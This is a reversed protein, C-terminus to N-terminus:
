WTKGKPYTASRKDDDQAQHILEHSTAEAREVNQAAVMEYLEQHLQIARDPDEAPHVLLGRHRLLLEILAGMRQLLDNKSAASLAAHFSIDASVATAADSSSLGALAQELVALDAETRRAAALRAVAPEIVSRAESLMTLMHDIDATNMEWLLVNPDLLNWRERPLVYTGLRQRAELLGKGSLVKLAERLATRSVGLESELAGLDIIAGAKVQGSVIRQGLIEVAQGHAGKGQYPIM